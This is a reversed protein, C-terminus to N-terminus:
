PLRITRKIHLPSFTANDTHIRWDCIVELQMKEPGLSSGLQHSVKARVWFNRKKSKHTANHGELVAKFEEVIALVEPIDKWFTAVEEWKYLDHHKETKVSRDPTWNALSAETYRREKAPTKIKKRLYPTTYEYELDYFAEREAKNLPAATSGYHSGPVHEVWVPRRVWGEQIRHKGGDLNRLRDVVPHNFLPQYESHYNGTAKETAVQRLVAEYATPEVRPTPMENQEYASSPVSIRLASMSSALANM